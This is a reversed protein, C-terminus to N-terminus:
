RPGVRRAATDGPEEIEEYGTWMEKYHTSAKPGLSGMYAHMFVFATFFIFLLVHVTDVTRVGGLLDVVVAFRKVDWLLLGTFFQLPLLIMMVIQYMMSQLPNFKHQPTVHHPNPEGLFIGWGYYRMQKFTADFFKARDPETHYVTIKDSFLYYGLWVLFCGGVAFGAWNHLQVATRFSMFLDIQGVYRIQLGTVILLVFCAANFWHWLRVPLPNIYLKKM